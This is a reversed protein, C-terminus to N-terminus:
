LKYFVSRYKLLNHRFRHIYTLVKFQTLWQPTLQKAKPCRYIQFDPRGLRSPDVQASKPREFRGTLGDGPRHGDGNLNKPVTPMKVLWQLDVDLDQFLDLSCSCLYNRMQFRATVLASNLSLLARPLIQRLGWAQRSLGFNLRRACDCEILVASM